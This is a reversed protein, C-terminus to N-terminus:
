TAVLQTEAIVIAPTLPVLTLGLQQAKRQLNRVLCAQSQADYADAGPDHYPQRTKLMTYFIRALKHATAVNAVAPGFRARMRRYFAGLASKSNALSQAAQRFALNARSKVPKTATRLPKGGSIAPNPALGLWNCFHKASPWKSMDTGVESLITQVSLGNLGPIATM